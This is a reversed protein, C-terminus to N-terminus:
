PRTNRAMVRQANNRIALLGAGGGLGAAGAVLPLIWLLLVTPTTLIRRLPNWAAGDDGEDGCQQQGGGAEAEGEGTEGRPRRLNNMGCEGSRQPKKVVEAFVAQSGLGQIRTCTGHSCGRCDDQKPGSCVLCDQHCPWFFSARDSSEAGGDGSGKEVNLLLVQTLNPICFAGDESHRCGDVCADHDGTNAMHMALRKLLELLNEDTLAAALNRMEHPDDTLNYLELMPKLMLNPTHRLHQEFKWTELKRTNGGGALLLKHHTILRAYNLNAILKLNSKASRVSRAPRCPTGVNTDRLRSAPWFAYAFERHHAAACASRSESCPALVSAAFSQGDMETENAAHALHLLTPLVDTLEVLAKTESGPALKGPWRAILPVGIGAEYMSEKGTFVGGRGHDSTFLVLTNNNNDDNNTAAIGDIEELASQILIDAREIASLYGAQEKQLERAMRSNSPFSRAYPPFSPLHNSFLPADAFRAAPPDPHPEHPLFLSIILLFPPPPSSSLSQQQRWFDFFGRMARRLRGGGDGGTVSARVDFHVTSPGDYYDFRQTLMWPTPWERPWAESCVTATCPTMPTHHGVVADKGLLGTVYGAERM